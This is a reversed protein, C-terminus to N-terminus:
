TQREAAAKVATLWSTLAQALKTSDYFLTLLPGAMSEESDLRTANDALPHLVHRHVANAGSSVGTWTLERVPDVIAFRSKIQARGNSWTFPADATVGDPLCMQTIAPVIAPWQEAASLIEWVRQPTAAIDVSDAATVFAEHDIRGHKAYKDHLVKLTPGRYLFSLMTTPDKM